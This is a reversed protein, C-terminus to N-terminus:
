KKNRQNTLLNIEGVGLAKLKESIDILDKAPFRSDAVLLIKQPTSQELYQWVAEKDLDSVVVKGTKSIYLREENTIKNSSYSNPKELEFPDPIIFSSTMLFFILLLFIVNVMPIISEKEVRSSYLSIRM